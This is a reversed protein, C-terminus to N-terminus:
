LSNAYPRRLAELALKRTNLVIPMGLSCIRSIIDSLFTSHLFNLGTLHMDHLIYMHMCVRFKKQLSVTSSPICRHTIIIFTELM